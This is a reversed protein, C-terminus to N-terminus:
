IGGALGNANKIVRLLNPKVPKDERRKEEAKAL